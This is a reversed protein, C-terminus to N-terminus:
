LPEDLGQHVNIFASGEQDLNSNLLDSYTRNVRLRTQNDPNIQAVWVTGTKKVQVDPIVYNENDSQFQAGIRPNLSTILALSKRLEEETVELEKKLSALNRSGVLELHNEVIATALDLGVTESPLQALLLALREGLNRAGVGVPDLTKLLSLVAQVEDEEVELKPDLMLCVDSIEASLYGDSDLCHLLTHAITRDLKSLKTMQVQWNLHEFLSDQKVVYQTFETHASSAHNSNQNSIPRHSDFAEQLNASLDQEPALTDTRELEFSPDAAEAIPQPIGNDEVRSVQQIQEAAVEEQEVRELLPNSDLTQQIEQELDLSPLQLLRLSQKLQPTLTLQQSLKLNLTQKM